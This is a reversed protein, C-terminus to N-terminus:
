VSIPVTIVQGTTLEVVVDSAATVYGPPVATGHAAEADLGEPLAPGAPPTIREAVLSNLPDRPRPVEPADPM